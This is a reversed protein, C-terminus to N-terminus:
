PLMWGRSYICEEKNRQGRIEFHTTGQYAITIM